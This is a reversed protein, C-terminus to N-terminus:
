QKARRTLEEKPQARRLREDTAILRDIEAPDDKMLEYIRQRCRSSHARRSGLDLQVHVCGTCGDTFGYKQLPDLMLKSSVRLAMRMKTSPGRLKSLRQSRQPWGPCLSM